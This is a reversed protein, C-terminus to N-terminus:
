IKLKTYFNLKKFIIKSNKNYMKEFFIKLLYILYLKITFTFVSESFNIKTQEIKAELNNFTEIKIINEAKNYKERINSGEIANVTPTASHIPLPINLM